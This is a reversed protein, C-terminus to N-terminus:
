IDTIFMNNVKFIVFVHIDSYMFFYSCAVYTYLCKCHAAVLRCAGLYFLSLTSLVFYFLNHFSYKVFLSCPFICAIEHM